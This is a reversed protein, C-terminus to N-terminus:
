KKILTGVITLQDRTGDAYEVTIGKQVPASSGAQKPVAEAKYVTSIFNVENNATTCGCGPSITKIEKCEPTKYFIATNYSHEKVDGLNVTTQSFNPM